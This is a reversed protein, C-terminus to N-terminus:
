ASNRVISNTNKRVLGRNRDSRYPCTPPRDGSVRLPHGGGPRASPAHYCPVLSKYWSHHRAYTGKGTQNSAEGKTLSMNFSVQMRVQDNCLAFEM